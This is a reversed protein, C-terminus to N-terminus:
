GLPFLKNALANGADTLAYRAQHGGVGTKRGAQVVKVLGLKILTRPARTLRSAGGNARICTVVRRLMARTRPHMDAELQTRDNNATTM